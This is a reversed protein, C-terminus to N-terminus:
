HERKLERLVPIYSRSAAQDARPRAVATPSHLSLEGLGNDKLFPVRRSRGKQSLSLTAVGRLNVFNGGRRSSSAGLRRELDCFGDKEPRLFM